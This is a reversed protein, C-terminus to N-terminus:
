EEERIDKIMENIDQMFVKMNDSIGEETNIFETFDNRIEDHSLIAAIAKMQFKPNRDGMEEMVLLQMDALTNIRMSLQDLKDLLEKNTV